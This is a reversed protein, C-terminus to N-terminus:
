RKLLRKLSHGSIYFRQQHRFKKTLNCLFLHGSRGRFAGSFLNTGINFQQVRRWVTPLHHQPPWSLGQKTRGMLLKRRSSPWFKQLKENKSRAKKKTNQRCYNGPSAGQHAPKAVAQYSKKHSFYPKLNACHPSM